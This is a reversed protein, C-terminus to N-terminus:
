DQFFVIHSCALSKYNVATKADHVRNLIKRIRGRFLNQKQTTGPVIKAMLPDNTLDSQFICYIKLFEVNEGCVNRGLVNDMNSFITKNLPMPFM